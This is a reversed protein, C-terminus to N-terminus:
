VPASAKRTTKLNIDKTLVKVAPSLYDGVIFFCEPGGSFILSFAEFFYECFGIVPGALFLYVKFAEVSLPGPNGRICWAAGSKGWKEM